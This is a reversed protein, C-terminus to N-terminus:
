NIDQRQSIDLNYKFNIIQSLNISDGHSVGMKIISIVLTSM